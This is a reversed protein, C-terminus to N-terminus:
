EQHSWSVPLGNVSLKPKHSVRPEYANSLSSKQPANPTEEDSSSFLLTM